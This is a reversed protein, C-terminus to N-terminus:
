YLGSGSMLRQRVLAIHGRLEYFQDAFTGPVKMRNVSTEIHDLRELLDKNNASVPQSPLDKEIELLARYWKTLRSRFRWRYIAPIFRLGPLLVILPIFIAIIRNVLSALWFPLYRYLFSKGSKYFRQADDSIRIEQEKPSPFEGKGRLLGSGSHAERAAGLVLDSLAPHLDERAILEVTPAMLFVDQEPINKGLDISGKPLTIKNLYAIRRAYADAQAFSFLRIGPAHLLKRILSISVSDGMLFVADVKGRLIAEAARDSDITLLKTPGGPAIGNAALLTLALTNTGSGEEGVAVRRGAFGSLLEIRHNSRYFIFLPEYAISGLSVLKDTVIGKYVGAQVFGIDVKSSPNALRKINDVSGESPLIRLTVGDRKLIKAYRGAMREYLSGKPGSTLTITNPPALYFFLSVGVAFAVITLIVASLAAARGLGFAETYMFRIRQLRSRFDKRM